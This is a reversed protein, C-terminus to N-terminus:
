RAVHAVCLNELQVRRNIEGKADITRSSKCESRGWSKCLQAAIRPAGYLGVVKSWYVVFRRWYSKMAKRVRIRSAAEGRM